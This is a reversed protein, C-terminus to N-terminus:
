RRITGGFQCQKHFPQGGPQLGALRQVLVLDLPVVGLKRRLQAFQQRREITRERLEARGEGAARPVCRLRMAQEDLQRLLVQCGDACRGDDICQAAKRAGALRIEQAMPQQLGVAACGTCRLEVFQQVLEFGAGRAAMAQVDLDAGAEGLSSTAEAWNSVQLWLLGFEHDYRAARQVEEDLWGAFESLSAVRKRSM